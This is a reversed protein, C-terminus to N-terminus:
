TNKFKLRYYRTVYGAVRNKVEKSQIDTLEAVKKKNHEFDDSFKDRHKELIQQTLHKIFTTKIRGM